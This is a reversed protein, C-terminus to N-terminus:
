SRLSQQRFDDRLGLNDFLRTRWLNVFLQAAPEVEEEEEKRENRTRYPGQAKLQTISHAEFVLGGRFRQVNRYLSNVFLKAAPVVAYDVAGFFQNGGSDVPSGLHAGM